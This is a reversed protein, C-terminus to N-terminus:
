SIVEDALMPCGNANSYKSLSSLGSLSGAQPKKEDYISLNLPFRLHLQAIDPREPTRM